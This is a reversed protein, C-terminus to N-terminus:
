EPVNVYDMPDVQKGDVRVEFHCGYGDTQGSNGIHGIVQRQAVKDGVKVTCDEMHGYLTTVKGGHDIVVHVGYGDGTDSATLVTGDAAALIEAGACDPSSIDVGSHFDSSEIDANYREGYSETIHLVTPVPWLLKPTINIDSINEGIKATIFVERYGCRYSGCQYQPNGYIDTNSGGLAINVDYFDLGTLLETIEDDTMQLLSSRDFGLDTTVQALTIINNKDRYLTLLKKNGLDYTFGNHQALERDFNGLMVNIENINKGKLLGNIKEETMGALSERTINEAGADETLLVNSVTKAPTLYVTLTRSGISYVYGYMGSLAGDYGGLAKDLEDFDMGTIRKTIEAETMTQFFQRSIDAAPIEVSRDAIEAGTIHANMDTFIILARDSNSFAYQWKDGQRTAESYDYGGLAKDVFAFDLGTLLRSIEEETMDEFATMSVDAGIGNVALNIMPEYLYYRNMACSFEGDEPIVFTVRDPYIHVAANENIHVVARDSDENYYPKEVKVTMSHVSELVTMSRSFDVNYSQSVGDKYVEVSIDEDADATFFGLVDGIVTTGAYKGESHDGPLEGYDFMDWLRGLLEECDLSFVYSEDSMNFDVGISDRYIRIFMICDIDTNIEPYKSSDQYTVEVVVCPQMSAYDHIAGGGSSNERLLGFIKESDKYIIEQSASNPDSGDFRTLKLGEGADDKGYMDLLSGLTVCTNSDPDAMDWLESLLGLSNCPFSYDGYVHSFGISIGYRTIHIFAKYEPNERDYRVTLVVEDDTYSKPPMGEQRCDSFRSLLTYVLESNKILVTGSKGDYTATGGESRTLEIGEGTGDHGYKDLLSGLTVNGAQKEAMGWLKDFLDYSNCGFVFDIYEDGTYVSVSIGYQYVHFAAKQEPDDKNYRVIIIVEPEAAAPIPLVEQESDSFESLLDFIIEGDMGPATVTEYDMVAGGSFLIVDAGKGSGDQGCIDLIDGM